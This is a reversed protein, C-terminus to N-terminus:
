GMVMPSDSGDWISGLKYLALRHLQFASWMNTDAGSATGARPGAPGIGLHTWVQRQGAWPVPGIQRTGTLGEVTMNLMSDDDIWLDFWVPGYSQGIDFDNFRDAFTANGDEDWFIPGIARSNREDNDADTFLGFGPGSTIELLATPNGPNPQQDFLGIVHLGFGQSQYRNNEVYLLGKFQQGDVVVSTLNALPVYMRHGNSNRHIRSDIRNPGSSAYAYIFPHSGTVAIGPDSTFFEEHVLYNQPM